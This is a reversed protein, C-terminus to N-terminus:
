HIIFKNRVENLVRSCEHLNQLREEIMPIETDNCSSFIEKFEKLTMKGYM